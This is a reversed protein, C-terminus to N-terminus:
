CIFHMNQIFCNFFFLVNILCFDEFIILSFCRRVHGKIHLFCVGKQVLRYKQQTLNFFFNFNDFSRCSPRSEEPDTLILSPLAYTHTPHTGSTLRNLLRSSLYAQSAGGKSLSSIFLFAAWHHEARVGGVRGTGGAPKRQNSRVVLVGWVGVGGCWSWGWQKGGAKKSELERGGWKILILALLMFVRSIVWETCKHM